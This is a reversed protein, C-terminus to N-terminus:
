GQASGEGASADFGAASGLRHLREALQRRLEDAGRDVDASASKREGTEDDVAQKKLKEFLGVLTNLTRVNRECDAASLPEATAAMRKELETMKMDLARLLRNPMSATSSKVRSPSFKNPARRRPWGEENIRRYLRKQSIGHLVCLEDVFLVRKRYDQAIAEWDPDLRSSVTPPSM